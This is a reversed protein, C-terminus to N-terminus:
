CFQAWVVEQEEKEARCAWADLILYCVVSRCNYQSSKTTETWLIPAISHSGLWSIKFYFSGCSCPKVGIKM